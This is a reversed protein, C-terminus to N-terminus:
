KTKRKRIYFITLVAIGALAGSAAGGWLWLNAQDGTQPIKTVEEPQNVFGVGDVNEIVVTEGDNNM